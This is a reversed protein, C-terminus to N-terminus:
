SEELPGASRTNTMYDDVTSELRLGLAKVRNASERIADVDLRGEEARRLLEKHEEGQEYLLKGLEDGTLVSRMALGLQTKVHYRFAGPSESAVQKALYADLAGVNQGHIARSPEVNGSLLVRRALPYLESADALINIGYRKGPISHDSIILPVREGGALESLAGIASEGDEFTRVRFKQGTVSEHEASFEACVDRVLRGFTELYSVEDDILFIYNTKNM